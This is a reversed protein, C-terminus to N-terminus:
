LPISSHADSAGGLQCSAAPLYITFRTGEGPASVVDVAGGHKTIIYKTITMGLGTGQKKKTFYPEFVGRVVEETMGPGDDIIEIIVYHGDKLRDSETVDRNQAILRVTGKEGMAQKANIIINGVVQSLHPTVMYVESLDQAIDPELVIESGALNFRAIDGLVTRIDTGETSPSGIRSFSMLQQTLGKANEMAREISDIREGAKAQDGFNMRLLELNGSLSILFNGFDHAVGGALLGISRHRQSQWLEERMRERETIDSVVTVAGISRGNLVIPARTDIVRARGGSRKVLITCDSPEHEGQDDVSSGHLVGEGNRDDILPMVESLPRGAAESYSWGTMKEAVPNMMVVGDDLDTVIVGDGISRLTTELRNREQALLLEAAARRDLELQLSENSARLEETREIVANELNQNTWAIQESSRISRENLVYTASAIGLMVVSRLLDLTLASMDGLLLDSLNLTSVLLLTILLGTRRFWVVSIIIPLYFFHTFFMGTGLVWHFTYIFTLAIATTVLVIAMRVTNSAFIPRQVAM